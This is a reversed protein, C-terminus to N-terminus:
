KASKPRRATRSSCKTIRAPRRARSDRGHGQRNRDRGPERGERGCQGEGKLWQGIQVETISEGVAPVKLEVAMTSTANGGRDPLRAHLNDRVIGLWVGADLLEKQEMGTRAPRAPPRAPRRAASSARSRCATSCSAASGRWCSVALGGHEGARGAGLLGAHRGRYPSLAAKCSIWRCRISSSSGCSRWTRGSMSKASRSWSTTSRAAACCCARSRGAARADDDPIVQQFQGTPWSTWRALRCRPHRLLSKPTMVVLPKRWRRLVQRRLCHFYQAPTTPEVIQINDEAALMLFRELRAISHEPGQGEFGHPLLMVLGSLRRWKDEASAIFQDIIVQAANVFDGFQAEWMVLGDPCDLSYGYEFGLVGAESLPSNIIEVPAQDRRCTSCRRTATRRGRLRAARRAAPQVHRAHQGPREAARPLRRRGPQGLGAGRRRGLRAATRRAAMQAAVNAAFAQTKPHPHFDAPLRTQATSCNSSSSPPRRRHRRGRRRRRPRRRLGELRRRAHRARASTNTAAQRGLTRRRPPRPRSSPSTTPRTAAHDRGARAPARPLRRPRAPAQRDDRYLVPQTFAPEDSENHGRRRYCYM